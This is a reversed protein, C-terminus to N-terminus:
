ARILLFREFSGLDASLIYVSQRPVGGGGGGDGFSMEPM